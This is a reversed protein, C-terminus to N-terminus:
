GHGRNKRSEEGLKKYYKDRKARYEELQAEQIPFFGCRTLNKHTFHKYPIPRNGERDTPGDLIEYAKHEENFTFIMSDDPRVLYKPNNYMVDLLRGLANDMTDVFGKPWESLAATHDLTIVQDQDGFEDTQRFILKVINLRREAHRARCEQVITESGVVVTEGEDISDIYDNIQADPITMGIQPDYILTINKM